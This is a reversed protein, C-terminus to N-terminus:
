SREELWLQNRRKRKHAFYVQAMINHACPEPPRHKERASGLCLCSMTRRSFSIPWTAAMVPIQEQVNLSCRVSGAFRSGELEAM